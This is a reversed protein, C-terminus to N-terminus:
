MSCQLSWFPSFMVLRVTVDLTFRVCLSILFFTDKNNLQRHALDTTAILLPQGFRGGIDALPPGDGPHTV